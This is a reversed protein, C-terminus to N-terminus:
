TELLAYTAAVGAEVFGGVLAIRESPDVAVIDEGTLVAGTFGERQWRGAPLEPLETDAAPYPWPTIYLYPQDYTADGPSLGIGISRAEDADDEDPDLSVLTAMDFHHPWCRVPTADDHSALAKLLSAVSQYWDALEERAEADGGFPAGDAVPHSPMEYGPRALATQGLQEATWSMAEDLTKGELGLEAAVVGGKVVGLTLSEPYLRVRREVDAPIPSTVFCQFREDWTTAAHSDDDRKPVLSEGVAALVQLAWHVHQRADTLGTPPIAGLGSFAASPKVGETKDRKTKPAWSRGAPSANSERCSWM